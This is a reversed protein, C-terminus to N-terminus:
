GYVCLNMMADLIYICLTHYYKDSISFTFRSSFPTGTKEWGYACGSRDSKGNAVGSSSWSAKLSIRERQEVVTLSSPKEGGGVPFQCITEEVGLLSTQVLLEENV